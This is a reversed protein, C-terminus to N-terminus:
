LQVQSLCFSLSISCLFCPSLQFSSMFLTHSVYLLPSVFLCILYASLSCVSPSIFYISPLFPINYYFVPFLPLSMGLSIFLTISNLLLSFSALKPLPIYLLFYISMCQSVHLWLCRPLTFASLSIIHLLFVSVLCALSVSVLVSLFYLM